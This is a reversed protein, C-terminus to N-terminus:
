VPQRSPSTSTPLPTHLEHEQLSRLWTAAEDETMPRAAALSGGYQRVIEPDHGLGRRAQADEPRPPRLTVRLGTL